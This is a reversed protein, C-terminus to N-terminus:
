KRLIPLSKIWPRLAALVARKWETITENSVVRILDIDADPPRQPVDIASSWTWRNNGPDTKSELTMTITLRHPGQRPVPVRTGQYGATSPHGEQAQWYDLEDYDSM